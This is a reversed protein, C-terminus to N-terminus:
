DPSRGVASRDELHIDYGDVSRLVRVLAETYSKLRAPPDNRLISQELERAADTIQPFGYGGGSGKLTHAARRLESLNGAALFENLERVAAPLEAVFENLIGRFAPDDAMQSKLVSM